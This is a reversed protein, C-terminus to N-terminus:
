FKSYVKLANSNSQVLFFVSAYQVYLVSIVAMAQVRYSNRSGTGCPQEDDVDYSRSERERERERTRRRAAVTTSM